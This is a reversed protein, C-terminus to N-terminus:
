MAMQPNNFSAVPDKPGHWFTPATPLWIGSDSQVGGITFDLRQFPTQQGILEAITQEISPGKGELQQENQELFPQSTLFTLNANWHQTGVTNLLPMLNDVGTLVLLNEKFTELPELIFPFSFNHEDGIPVFQNMVTGQPYHFVILRKPGATSAYASRSSGLFPLALAGSGIQLM